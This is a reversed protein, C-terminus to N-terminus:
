YGVKEFKIEEGIWLWVRRNQNGTRAVELSWASSGDSNKICCSFSIEDTKYFQIYETREESCPSLLIRDIDGYGKYEYCVRKDNIELLRYALRAGNCRVDIEHTAHEYLRKAEKKLRELEEENYPCFNEDRKFEALLENPNTNKILM